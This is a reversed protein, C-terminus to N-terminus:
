HTLSRSSSGELSKITGELSTNGDFRDDGLLEALLSVLLTEDVPLCAEAM